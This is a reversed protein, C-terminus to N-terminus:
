KIAGRRKMSNILVDEGERGQFAQRIEAKDFVNVIKNNVEAVAGPAPMAAALTRSAAAQSAKTANYSGNRASGVSAEFLEGTNARHVFDSGLADMASVNLVGEGPALKGPQGAFSVPVSDVGRRSGPSGIVKGQKDIYGGSAMMVPMGFYAGAIAGLIAGWKSGSKGGVAGGLAAGLGMGMGAGGLASGMGGMGGSQGLGAFSAAGTTQTVGGGMKAVEPGYAAAASGIDAGTTGGGMGFLGGLSSLFGGGSGGGTAGGGGFGLMSTFSSFANSIGGTLKSFFGQSPKEMGKTVATPVEASLVDTISGALDQAGNVNVVAAQVNMVGSAEGGMGLLDGAAGLVSDVAGAAPAPNSSTTPDGGGFLGGLGGLGIADLYGNGGEILASLGENLNTQIMMSLQQAAFDHIIQQLTDGFNEGEDIARVIADGIENFAGLLGSRLNDGMSEFTLGTQELAIVWKRGDLVESLAQDSTMVLNELEYRTEGIQTDVARLEDKLKGLVEEDQGLQQAKLIEARVEASRNTLLTLDRASAAALEASTFGDGGLYATQAAGGLDPGTGVDQYKLDRLQARQDFLKRINEVQEALPKNLDERLEVEALIQETTYGRAKLEEELQKRLKDQVAIYEDSKAIFQGIDGKDIAEDFDQKVIRQEIATQTVAIKAQKAAEQDSKRKAAEGATSAQQRYKTLDREMELPLTELKAQLELVKQQNAVVNGKGDAQSDAAKAQAQALEKELIEREAKYLQRIPNDEGSSTLKSFDDSYEAKKIATEAKTKAAFQSVGIQNEEDRKRRETEKSQREAQSGFVGAIDKFLTATASGQKTVQEMLQRQATSGEPASLAGQNDKLFARQSANLGMERLMAPDALAKQYYPNNRFDLLSASQQDAFQRTEQVKKEARAREEVKGQRQIEVGGAEISALNSKELEIRANLSDRKAKQADTLFGFIGLSDREAELESIEASKVNTALRVGDLLSQVREQVTLGLTTVSRGINAVILAISASNDAAALSSALQSSLDSMQADRRQAELLPKENLIEYVKRTYDEMAQRQEDFDLTSTGDLINRFEDGAEGAAKIRAAIEPNLKDGDARAKAAEEVDLQLRRAISERMGKVTEDLQQMAQSIQFVQRDELPRGVLSEMEDLLVNRVSGPSDAYQEVLQSLRSSRDELGQGFLEEAELLVNELNARYKALTDPFTGADPNAADVDYQRLTDDLRAIKERASAAKEQAAAAAQQMRALDTEPILDLMSELITLLLGGGLVLSVVSGIKDGLGAPTDIDGDKSLKKLGPIKELTKGVKSFVRLKKGLGGIVGGVLAVLGAVEAVDGLGLDGNDTLGQGASGAAAGGFAGVGAGILRGKVGKGLLFGAAGGALASGAVDTLGGEGKAKLELDLDSLSEIAKTAEAAVQQLDRILGGSLQESLQVISSGLNEMTASLSQLQIDAGEVAARGFTIKSEAAELEKFNTVLASIANFARIDFGRQLTKQGEDAFGIRKLEGLAATLPNDANTFGFFRRRIQEPNLDEGMEAYRSSLANTTNTDPNFVELMAQRLGTAVTSPKIGANRLTTVAGLLQELDVNYSAATQSTLSLITKLDEATLKSLNIAKTLQDAITSDDLEKFVTRVTTLLDAAVSLSSNTASAFQATSMLVRDMEKPEVGAQGLLEAANAIERTSFNTSLAVERVSRSIAQMERDTAQTIAKISFFARDLEILENKLQAAMGLLAYLGGYGIAYRGFQGLLREGGSEVQGGRSGPGGPGRGAKEQEALFRRRDDLARRDAKAKDLAALADRYEKSEAGHLVKAEELSRLSSRRAANLGTIVAEIDRKDSLQGIGGAGAIIRAAEAQSAGKAATSARKAAEADYERSVQDRKKQAEDLQKQHAEDRKTAAAYWDDLRKRESDSRRQVDSGDAERKKREAVQRKIADEDRKAAAKYWDDLRKREPDTVNKRHDALGKWRDTERAGYGGSIRADAGMAARVGPGVRGRQRTGFITQYPTNIVERTRVEQKLERRRAAAEARQTKRLLAESQSEEQKRRADVKAPATISRFDNVLQKRAANAAVIESALDGFGLKSLQGAMRELNKTQLALAASSKALNNREAAQMQLYRGTDKDNVVKRLANLDKSAIAPLGALEEFVKNMQEARQIATNVQDGKRQYSGTRVSEAGFVQLVQKLQKALEDDAKLGPLARSKGIAKRGTGSLISNLDNEFKKITDKRVGDMLGKFSDANVTELVDKYDRGAAKFTDRLQERLAKLSKPSLLSEGLDASSAAEKITTGLAKTLQKKLKQEDLVLDLLAEAKIEPIKSM